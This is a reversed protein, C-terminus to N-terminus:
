SFTTAGRAPLSPLFVHQHAQPVARGGDSGERPALTSILFDVGRQELQRGDSGERPALTSIDLVRGVGDQPGDSGERPALTSILLDHGGGGNHGRREGRPSRPYFHAQAASGFLYSATAGRAPLSPLFVLLNLQIEAAPADSGERPALTSIRCFQPHFLVAVPREGRPSRPYFYAERKFFAPTLGDSGERPALTSIIVQQDTM